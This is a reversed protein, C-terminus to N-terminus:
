KKLDSLTKRMVLSRLKKKPKGPPEGRPGIGIADVGGGGAANAAAGAFAASGDEKVTNVM